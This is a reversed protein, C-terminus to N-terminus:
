VPPVALPPGTGAREEMVGHTTRGAQGRPVWSVSWSALITVEGKSGGGGAMDGRAKLSPPAGLADEGDTPGVEGHPAAGM